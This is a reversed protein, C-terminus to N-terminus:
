TLDLKSESDACIRNDKTAYLDKIRLYIGCAIRLVYGFKFFAVLPNVRQRPMHMVMLVLYLTVSYFYYLGKCLWSGRKGEV